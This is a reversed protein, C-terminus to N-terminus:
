AVKNYLDYLLNEMHYDFIRNRLIRKLLLETKEIRARFVHRRLIPSLLQEMKRIRREFICRRIVWQGRRAASYVEPPWDNLVYVSTTEAFVVTRRRPVSQVGYMGNGVGSQSTSAFLTSDGVSYLEKGHSRTDGSDSEEM